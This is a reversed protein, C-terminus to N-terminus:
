AENKKDRRRFLFGGLLLVAGAVALIPVPWWLQGTQVIIPNTPIPEATNTVYFTNGSRSISVYYGDPVSEEAVQWYVTGDLGYWTYKWNNGSNLTIERVVRGSNNLLQMVVSSPRDDPYDDDDWLKSVTVNVTNDVEPPPVNTVSGYKVVAEVDYIWAHTTEEMDPLCKMFPTPTYTTYGITHASGIALYLGVPLNDFVLEGNADTTGTRVPTPQDRTVYASLTEALALWGSNDMLSLDANIDIISYDDFDDTLTFVWVGRVDAVKYLDFKVGAHDYKLALSTMRTTDLETYALAAPSLLMACMVLCVAFSILRVKRTKGRNM